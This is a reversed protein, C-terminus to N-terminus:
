TRSSPPATRNLAPDRSAAAVFRRIATRARPFWTNEFQDLLRLRVATANGAGSPGSTAGVLYHHFPRALGAAAAWGTWGLQHEVADYGVLAAHAGIVQDQINVLLREIQNLRDRQETTLQAVTSPVTIVSRRPM